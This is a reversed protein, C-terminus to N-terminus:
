KGVCFRSFIAGLWEEVGVKGTLRGIENSASRIEEAKLELQSASAELADNLFRISKKAAIIQRESVLVSPEELGFRQGLLVSLQEIFASIGHGTRTSIRLEAGTDENRTLGSDLDCKNQATIDPTIGDSTDSGMVDASWIWVVIDADSIRRRSRRIGEEEVPDSVKERLGATDTLIVPLGNLDLFVEITDRTTGPVDSVIAAERKALMNLLSSKGTNPMGALVVRVGDRIVEAMGARDITEVIQDRLSRIRADIGPAAEEAVGPEDVFDVVAEIDARILVLQERWTEIVSSAAGSMQRFAQRRQKATHAELLDALGEVEVLDLKGNLLARRTFEGPEAPRVGEHSALAAMVARVVAPSGHLHLEACDEGTFSRPGPLWAVVARDLLEGSQPDCIPKVAFQRPNPLGDAMGALLEGSFPGSIRVIAVASRGAGSSLAFITEASTM